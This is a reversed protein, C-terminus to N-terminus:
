LTVIQANWGEQSSIFTLLVFLHLFQRSLRYSVLLLPHLSNNEDNDHGMTIMLRYDGDELLGHIYLMINMDCLMIM